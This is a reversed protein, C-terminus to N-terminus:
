SIQEEETIVTREVKFVGLCELPAFERLASGKWAPFRVDGTLRFRHDRKLVVYGVPYAPLNPIPKILRAEYTTVTKTTSTISMEM